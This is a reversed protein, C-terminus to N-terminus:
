NKKFTQAHRYAKYSICIGYTYQIIIMNVGIRSENRFISVNQTQVYLSINQASGSFIYIENIACANNFYLQSFFYKTRISIFQNDNTLVINTRHGRRSKTEM